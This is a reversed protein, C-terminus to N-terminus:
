EHDLDMYIGKVYHLKARRQATLTIGMVDFRMEDINEHDTAYAAMLKRYRECKQRTVNLEPTLEEEGRKVRTKIEIFATENGDQAILDVEGCFCKWNKELISYGRERLFSMALNEGILGVQRPTLEDLTISFLENLSDKQEVHQNAPNTSTLM